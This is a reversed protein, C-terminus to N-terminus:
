FRKLGDEYQEETNHYVLLDKLSLYDQRTMVQPLLMRRAETDILHECFGLAAGNGADDLYPSSKGEVRYICWRAYDWIRRLLDLPPPQEECLHGFKASLEIWLMMPNDVGRSAIIRQLEPLRKSAERRWASM